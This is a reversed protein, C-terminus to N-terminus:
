EHHSGPNKVPQGIVPHVIHPSPSNTPPHVVVPTQNSKPPQPHVNPPVTPEGMLAVPPRVAPKGMLQRPPPCQPKNPKHTPGAKHAGAVRTPTVESARASAIGLRGGVTALCAGVMAAAVGSMWKFPRQVLKFPAPCGSTIVSGDEQQYFRVCPTTPQSRLVNEAEARSMESLNYVNKACLQCFRVQENGAMEEWAAHCPTDIRIDDLAVLPIDQRM